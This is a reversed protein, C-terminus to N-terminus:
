VDKHHVQADPAPASTRYGVVKMRGLMEGISFFGICEAAVVGAAAMDQGSVNRMRSLINTPQAASSTATQSFLSAPHRLANIMPQMYSQFASMSPPSMKRAEFVMKALELGVRGYYMTPPILSQVFGIMRGTRGGISSVAGGLRSVMGGASSSVRTLGESAKSTAQSTKPKISGTADPITSANRLGARRAAFPSHRLVARSAAFSM